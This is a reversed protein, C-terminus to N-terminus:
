KQKKMRPITSYESTGPVPAIPLTASNTAQEATIMEAHIAAAKGGDGGVQAVQEAGAVDAGDLPHQDGRPGHGSHQPRHQDVVYALVLDVVADRLGGPYLVVRYMMAPRSTTPRSHLRSTLGTAARKWMCGPSVRAGAWRPPGAGPPQLRRGGGPGGRRRRHASAQTRTPTGRAQPM